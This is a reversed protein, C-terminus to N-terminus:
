QNRTRLTPPALAFSSICPARLFRSPFDSESDFAAVVALSGALLRPSWPCHGGSCCLCNHRCPQATFNALGTCDTSINLDLDASTSPGRVLTM